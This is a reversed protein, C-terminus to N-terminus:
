SRRYPCGDVKKAVLKGAKWVAPMAGRDCLFNVGAMREKDEESVARRCLPCRDLREGQLEALVAERHTRLGALLAQFRKRHRPDAPQTVTTAGDQLRIRCGLEDLEAILLAAPTM